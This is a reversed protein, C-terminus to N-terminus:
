PNHFNTEDSQTMHTGAHRAVQKAGAM